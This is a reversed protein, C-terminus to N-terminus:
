VQTQIRATEVSAAKRLEKSHREVTQDLMSQTQSPEEGMKSGKGKATTQVCFVTCVNILGDPLNFM